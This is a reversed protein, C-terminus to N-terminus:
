EKTETSEEPQSPEVVEPDTTEVPDTPEPPEPDAVESETPIETEGEEPEETKSFDEGVFKIEIAELDEVTEAQEIAQRTKWKQAYASQGNQIIELQVTKMQTEDLIHPVNEHDMFAVTAKAEPNASLTTVLGTADMMARADSDAVFGLSTTVTADEEYWKMFASDLEQLKQSKLDELDPKPAECVEYYAGMDVIRGNNQNCWAACEAYLFREEKTKIPKAIKTGLKSTM